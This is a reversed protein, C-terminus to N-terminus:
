QAVAELPQAPLPVHRRAAKSATRLHMIQTVDLILAVNGDGMITAGSIGPLAAFHRDITKVVIQRHGCIDDVILGVHEGTDLELVMVHVRMPLPGHALGLQAALHIARLQRGRVTVFSGSAAVNRVESHSVVLSEVLNSLPVFYSQGSVRVLMADLIALTLPLTITTTTGAGPESRISIRGGLGVINRNVVDMGVGRGSFESLRAATSLGPSFILNDIERPSLQAEGDIVGLALAKEYVRTRDIGRGDDSVEVVIQGGRQHASLQVSGVAPKGAKIREDPREIGHDVANRVIHMLPDSLQEIITKDIETEEGSTTLSVSKGGDQAVDRVIRPMRQFVSRIPQARIAMVAEQLDRSLQSMQSLARYLGANNDINMQDLQQAVMAQAITVEGVLDVLREVRDIDVRISNFQQQIPAPRGPKASAALATEDDAPRTTEVTNEVICDIDFTCESSIFEFVESIATPSATTEIKFIFELYNRAPDLVDFDPLRSVDAEVEVSGLSKLEQAILFPEIGRRLIDASPRLHIRYTKLGGDPSGMGAHATPTVAAAPAGSFTSLDESCTVEYDQPLTAGSRAAQTLDCLIDSALLLKELVPSSIADPDARLRDLASEMLHAFATLRSFGFMGAGGKLSHIARFAANVSNVRDDPSALASLNQELSALLEDCEQFFTAKFKEIQQM